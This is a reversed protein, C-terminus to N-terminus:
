RAVYDRVEPSLAEGAPKVAHERLARGLAWLVAAPVGAVVLALLIWLMWRAVGPRFRTLRELTVPLRRLLSVRQREYFAFTLTDNVRRGDVTTTSRSRTRDESGTFAVHREGANRICVRAALPAAPPRVPVRVTEGDAYSAPVPATFRYGRARIELRLPQARRKYTFVQFRAQESRSEIAVDGFCAASGPPVEILGIGTLPRPSSVSAPTDRARVLGPVLWVASGAVLVVLASLVARRDM